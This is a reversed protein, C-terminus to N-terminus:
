ARTNNLIAYELLLNATTLMETRLSVTIPGAPPVVTGRFISSTGGALEFEVVYSQTSGNRLTFKASVLGTATAPFSIFSSDPLVIRSQNTANSYNTLNYEVQIQDGIAITPGGPSFSLSGYTTNNATGSHITVNTLTAQRKFPIPMYSLPGNSAPFYAVMNERSFNPLLPMEIESTQLILPNGGQVVVFVKTLSEISVGDEGYIGIAGHGLTGDLSVIEMFGSENNIYTQEDTSGIVSIINGGHLTDPVQHNIETTNSGPYQIMVIPSASFALSLAIPADPFTYFQSNTVNFTYGGPLQLRVTSGATNRTKNILIVRGQYESINNAIYTLTLGANPQSNLDWFDTFPIPLPTVTGNDSSTSISRGGQLLPAPKLQLMDKDKLKHPSGLTLFYKRVVLWCSIEKIFKRGERM